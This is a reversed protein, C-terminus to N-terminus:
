AWHMVQAFIGGVLFAVVWSGVWIMLAERSGREKFLIMLSAICPVFLTIVILSTVVQIPTMALATLGAAGFDRRVMGMVFATAAEKPIHLWGVTLPTLLREWLTLGGSVQLLGVLLSGLFFWPSAEKMFFLSRTMTKRLVNYPRPLRLPPLDILLPSSKGPLIRNLLTGTMALVLFIVSIYLFVM